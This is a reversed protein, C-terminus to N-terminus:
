GRDKSSSIKKNETIASHKAINEKAKISGWDFNLEM